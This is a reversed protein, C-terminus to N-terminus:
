YDYKTRLDEPKTASGKKQLGKGVDLSRGASQQLSKYNEIDRTISGMLADIKYSATDPTDTLTALIKKYKEEDEKRLVGGELAKGVTQRVRDVDAQLKKASSWPNLAALGKIPGLKDINGTIKSKLGALDDLAKQTQSINQIATDSLGKVGLNSTDYGGTQLETIVQGKVTPTLNDFLAPNDIIAQTTSSMNGGAGGGGGGGGGFTGKVPATYKAKGTAPDYLTAGPSVEILDKQSNRFQEEAREQAGINSLQALGGPALGLTKEVMSMYYPDNNTMAHLGDYGVKNVVNNLTDQANKQMKQQYDMLQFSLNLQKDIRNQAEARDKEELGMLTDVYQEAQQKTQLLNNYNKILTKNRSAALAMVQSDTAFGGAKTIETRLDDETGEIVNKMNMLDTNMKEIGKAKSLTDFEERLSKQQTQPNLYDQVMKSFNGINKDETFLSDLVPNGQTPGGVTNQIMGRATGGDPPPQIGSNKMQDFGEKYKAALDAQTGHAGGQPNMTPALGNQDAKLTNVNLGPDVLGKPNVGTMQNQVDQATGFKQMYATPNAKLLSTAEPSNAIAHDKMQTSYRTAEALDKQMQSEEHKINRQMNSYASTNLYNNGAASYRATESDITSKYGTIRDGYLKKIEETKDM